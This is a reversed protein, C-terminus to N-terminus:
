VPEVCRAEAEAVISTVTEWMYAGREGDSYRDPFRVVKADVGIEFGNLVGRSAEIMFAKTADVDDDIRGNPATILVADHVPASVEIGNETAM